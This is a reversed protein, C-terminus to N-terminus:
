NLRLALLLARVRDVYTHGDLLNPARPTLEDPDSRLVAELEAASGFLRTRSDSGLFRDHDATWTAVQNGGAGPLEFSRMNHSRANQPRLVNLNWKAEGVVAAMEEGYLAPRIEVGEIDPWRNGFVLPRLHAIRSLVAARDKTGTGVFVIRGEAVGRGATPGHVHPDWAFPIVVVHPNSSRLQEAVDDAWTVYTDYASIGVPIGAGRNSIAGDFPSDPNWCVVPASLRRRVYEVTRPDFFQGKIVVVLDAPGNVSLSDVDRRLSRRFGAALRPARCAAWALWHPSWPGWDVPDVKWRLTTFSSIISNRLGGSAPDGIVVVRM